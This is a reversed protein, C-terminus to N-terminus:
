PTVPAGNLLVTPKEKEKDAEAEAKADARREEEEESDYESREDAVEEGFTRLMRWVIRMILFLWFINVLQLAALLLFTIWQSIWCKFQQGEWNLAYPGVTAFEAPGWPATASNYGSSILNATHPFLVSLRFAVPGLVKTLNSIAPSIIPGVKGSVASVTYNIHAAVKDPFPSPLPLLSLLIRINIYHRLYTWVLIFSAFYPIVIPSDIYNLVKSSQYSMLMWLSLGSSTSVALFFDSIDHTIYVAVGIYTFHFRYSLWILSLTIVHHAVLEKFDKRPKELLLLLVIMQQTWYSAQLLYYAKFLGDHTEHPFSEYMGTTSFYWVPTRSMVYLGLPGFVAFYIATYMQEMFRAQKARTLIRARIALPRLFRQMLFERTFSLFVTYYAV